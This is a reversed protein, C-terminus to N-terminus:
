CTGMSIVVGNGDVEFWDNSGSISGTAKYFGAALPNAGFADSYVFDYLGVIGPTNVLSVNYYTETESLSCVSVSTSGMVTSSFGTLLVTCGTILNWGVGSCPGILEINLINPTAATKPIVMFCDGPPSSSLSIDGTAITISQTNGTLNFSVGNFLWENLSLTAGSPYWSSCTGVSGSSGIITFGTPNTSQHFGDLASTVSNYINGNYTVRIGDPIDQPNFKIIIAGIDAPTSGADLNALYIGSSGSISIPTGCATGCSACTSPPLLVGSVQERSTVGDSYFGDPAIVTLSSNSFITTSSGLSPGNLYYTTAM